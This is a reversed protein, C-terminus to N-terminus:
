AALAVIKALRERERLGNKTLLYGHEIHTLNRGRRLSDLFEALTNNAGLLIMEKSSRLETYVQAATKPKTENLLCYVKHASRHFETCAPMNM